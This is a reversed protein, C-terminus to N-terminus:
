CLVARGLRHRDPTRRPQLRDRQRKRRARGRVPARLSLAAQCLAVGLRPARHPCGHLLDEALAVNDDQVERYARNVRNIYDEWALDDARQDAQRRQDAEADRATLAAAARSRTAKMALWISVLAALVLLM